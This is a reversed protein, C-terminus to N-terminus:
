LCKILFKLGIAFGRLLSLLLFFYFYSSSCWVANLSNFFLIVLWGTSARGLLSPFNLASILTNSYIMSSTKDQSYSYFYFGITNKDIVICTALSFYLIYLLSSNAITFNRAFYLCYRNYAISFNSTQVSWSFM